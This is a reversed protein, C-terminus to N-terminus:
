FCNGDPFGQHGLVEPGYVERAGLSSDENIPFRLIRRM